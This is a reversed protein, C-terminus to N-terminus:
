RRRRTAAFGGIALLAVSSPTPILEGIFLFDHTGTLPPIVDLWGRGVWFDQGAEPHGALRHEDQLFIFSDGTAQFDKDFLTFVTGAGVDPNGQSTLTGTNLISNPNVVWGTGSPGVNVAYEFSLDYSGAGFGVGAGTDVGGFVTGAIQIRFAGGGDDLVTLTSDGFTNMSFTTVGGTGGVTTFLNDFRLGYPPPNQNGDPHDSLSYQQIIGAASAASAFVLVAAIPLLSKM